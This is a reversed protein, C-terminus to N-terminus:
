AGAFIFVPVALSPQANEHSQGGGNASIAHEHDTNTPLTAAATNSVANALNTVALIGGSADPYGPIYHFHEQNRNMSATAGGAGGLGDGRHSHSPMHTMGLVVANVGWKTAVLRTPPSAEIGGGKAQGPGVPGRGSLDPVAFTTSGDGNGWPAPDGATGAHGARLYDWLRVETTRSYTAAGDCAFWRASPAAGAFWRLEGVIYLRSDVDEALNKMDRPVDASVGVLEPYRIGSATTGM